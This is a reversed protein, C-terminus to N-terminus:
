LLKMSQNLMKGFCIINIQGTVTYFIKAYYELPSHLHNFLINPAFFGNNGIKARAGDKGLIKQALQPVAAHNAIKHGAIALNQHQGQAPCEKICICSAFSGLSEHTINHRNQCIIIRAQNFLGFDKAFLGQAALNQSIQFLFSPVIVTSM